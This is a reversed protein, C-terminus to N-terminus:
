YVVSPLTNLERKCTCRHKTTRLNIREGLVCRLRKQAAAQGVVKTKCDVNQCEGAHCRMTSSRSHFKRGMGWAGLKPCRRSEMSGGCRADDECCLIETNSKCCFSGKRHLLRPNWRAETVLKWYDQWTVLSWSGSEWM